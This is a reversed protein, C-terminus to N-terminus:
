GAVSLIPRVNVSRLCNRNQDVISKIFKIYIIIIIMYSKNSIYIAVGVQSCWVTSSTPTSTVDNLWLGQCLPPPQSLLRTTSFFTPLTMPMLDRQLGTSPVVSPMAWVLPWHTVSLGTVYRM